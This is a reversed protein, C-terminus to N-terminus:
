DPASDTGAVEVRVITDGILSLRVTAGEVIPTGFQRQAHFGPSVVWVSVCFRRAEVSFCDSKRAPGEVYDYVQGSVVAADGAQLQRALSIAGTGGAGFLAAVFLLPAAGFMLGVTGAPAEGGGAWRVKPGRLEMVLSFFVWAISWVLFWWNRELGLVFISMPAAILPGLWWHRLLWARSTPILTIIVIVVLVALAMWGAIVEPIRDSVDFVTHFSGNASM